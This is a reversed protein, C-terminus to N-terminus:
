PTSSHVAAQPLCSVDALHRSLIPGGDVVSTWCQGLMPDIYRTHQSAERWKQCRLQVCQHGVRPWCHAVPCQPCSHGATPWRVSHLARALPPGGSVRFLEPGVTLLRVSQVARPWRHAVPCEPCSQALPPCGSVRSLEPGANPWRVSQVARPWRHAVPCEPCTQALPPGGSVKSLESGVTPWRVSQVARPWRHAM